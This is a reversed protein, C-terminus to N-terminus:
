SNNKTSVTLSNIENMVFYFYSLVKIKVSGSSSSISQFNQIELEVVLELNDEEIGRFLEATYDINAM